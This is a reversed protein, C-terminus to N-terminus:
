IFIVETIFKKFKEVSPDKEIAEKIKLLITENDDLTEDEYKERLFGVCMIAQDLLKSAEYQKGEEYLKSIDLLLGSFAKSM